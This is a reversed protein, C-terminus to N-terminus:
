CFSYALHRDDTPPPAPDTNAHDGFPGPIGAICVRPPPGAGKGGATIRAIM